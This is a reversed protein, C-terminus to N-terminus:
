TNVVVSGLAQGGAGGVMAGGPGGASGAAMGAISLMQVIQGKQAADHADAQAQEKVKRKMEALRAMTAQDKNQEARAYQRDLEANITNMAVELMKAKRQYAQTMSQMRDQLAEDSKASAITYDWLQRDNAFRRGGEDREFQLREDNLRTKVDRGLKALDERQKNTLFGVRADTAIGMRQLRQAQQLEADTLAKRTARDAASEQSKVTRAQAQLTEAQGIATLDQTRQQQGAQVQLAQQGLAQQTALGAERAALGPQAVAQVALPAMAQAQRVGAGPAAQQVAQSVQVQQAETARAAAQADLAPAAKAIARLRELPTAM